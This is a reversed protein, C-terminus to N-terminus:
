VFALIVAEPVVPLIPVHFSVFKVFFAAPASLLVDSWCLYFQWAESLGTSQFSIVRVYYVPIVPAKLKFLTGFHCVKARKWGHHPVEAGFISVLSTYEGTPRSFAFRNGM